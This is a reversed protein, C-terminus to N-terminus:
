RIPATLPQVSVTPPPHEDDDFAAEIEEAHVCAEIPTDFPGYVTREGAVPDDCIVIHPADITEAADAAIRRAIWSGNLRTQDIASPGGTPNNDNM